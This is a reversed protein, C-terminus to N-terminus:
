EVELLAGHCSFGAGFSSMWWYGGPTQENLAAQLVFYVCPSSVNGYDRLIAASWRTDAQTLGVRQGVAALIERGGAHLIWGTIRDRSLGEHELGETLVQDVHKAALEPVAPSLINRLMGRRREFRLEDRDVANMLTGASKWEIRRRGPIPDVTFVAAGAGDGFLCASILVGPDDDLYMAASCIEVCISLVQKARGSALLAEAMRMNPLAAGCGQGVLDLALVDTPLGLRETVYSTLGPCLYGTCTSIIVADIDHPTVGADALAREAARSAVAPAHKAFRADLVDPDFNFAESLHDFALHRSCIGNNGRLVKRLIAQSRANLTALCTSAVLADWCQAQTWRTSPAATGLGSFFM